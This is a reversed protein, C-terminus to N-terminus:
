VNHLQVVARRRVSVIAEKAHIGGGFVQQPGYSPALVRRVMVALVSRFVAHREM